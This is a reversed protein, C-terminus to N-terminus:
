GWSQPPASSVAIQPTIAVSKIVTAILSPQISTTDTTAEKVVTAILTPQTTSKTAIDTM